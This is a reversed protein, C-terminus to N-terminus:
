NVRGLLGLGNGLAVCRGAGFWCDGVRDAPDAGPAAPCALHHYAGVGVLGRCSRGAPVGPAAGHGPDALPEPPPSPTSDPIRLAVM